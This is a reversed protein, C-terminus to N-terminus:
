MSCLPVLTDGGPSQGLLCDWLLRIPWALASFDHPRSVQSEGKWLAAGGKHPPVILFPALFLPVPLLGLFFAPIQILFFSLKYCFVCSIYSELSAIQQCRSTKCM